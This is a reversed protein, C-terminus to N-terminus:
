HVSRRGELGRTAPEFGAPPVENEGQNSPVAVGGYGPAERLVRAPNGAVVVGPPVDDVVVAGVGIVANAGIKVEPALMAGVGVFAGRELECCGGTAAAPGITVYDGIRTHHGLSAGRNASFSAGARVGAGLIAGANVYSGEGLEVDSAVVATPDILEAQARFGRARADATAAHRHGPTILPVTFPLSHLQSPLEDVEVVSPLEASVPLGPVNRVCAEVEWGLRRATEMAEAAYPSSVAYLVLSTL